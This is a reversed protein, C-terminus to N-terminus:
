AGKFAYNDEYMALLEKAYLSKPNEFFAKTSNKEIIKGKELVVIEDSLAKIFDLDHSILVFSKEKKLEKIIKIINQTNTEDLSSTLEDCLLIEAGCALVLALQVRMAMGASLQHAYSHWILENDKFGVKDLWEFALNKRAKKNLPSLERLHIDFIKGMDFLPHFSARADQFVFCVKTRLTRLEKAKLELPVFGGLVLEDASLIFQKHLLRILSKALLSKGAGSKGIVGLTKNKSLEFSISELIKKGKLELNLNKVRIM